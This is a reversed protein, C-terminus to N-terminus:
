RPHKNTMESRLSDEAKLKGKIQDREELLEDDEEDGELLKRRMISFQSTNPKREEKKIKHPPDSDPHNVISDLNPHLTQFAHALNCWQEISLQQPRWNPDIQAMEIMKNTDVEGQMSRKSTM